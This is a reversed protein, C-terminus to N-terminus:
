DFRWEFLYMAVSLANGSHVAPVKSSFQPFIIRNIFFDWAIQARARGAEAVINFFDTQANPDYLWPDVKTRGSKIPGRGAKWGSRLRIGHNGPHQLWQSPMENVFPAYNLTGTNLVVVFPHLNGIRTYTAAGPAIAAGRISLAMVNRLRGSDRPVVSDPGNIYQLMEDVTPQYVFKMIQERLEIEAIKRYAGNNAEELAKINLECYFIVENNFLEQTGSRNRRAPNIGSVGHVGYPDGRVPAGIPAPQQQAVTRPTWTSRPQSPGIAPIIPVQTQYTPIPPVQMVTQFPNSKKKKGFM